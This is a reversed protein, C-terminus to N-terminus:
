SSEVSEAKSKASMEHENRSIALVHPLSPHLLRMENLRLYQLRCPPLFNHPSGPQTLLVSCTTAIMTLERQMCLLLNHLAALSATPAQTDTLKTLAAQQHLWTIDGETAKWTHPATHRQHLTAGGKMNMSKTWTTTSFVFRLWTMKHNYVLNGARPTSPRFSCAAFLETTRRRYHTSVNEHRWKPQTTARVLCVKCFEVNIMPPHELKSPQAPPIRVKCKSCM